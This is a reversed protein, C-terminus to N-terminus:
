KVIKRHHKVCETIRVYHEEDSLCIENSNHLNALSQKLVKYQADAHIMLGMFFSDCGICATASVASVSIKILSFIWVNRKRTVNWNVCFEFPLAHSASDLM